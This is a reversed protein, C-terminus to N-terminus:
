ICIRPGGDMMFLFAPHLKLIHLALDLAAVLSGGACIMRISGAPMGSTAGM